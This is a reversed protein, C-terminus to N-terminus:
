DDSEMRARIFEIESDYLEDTQVYLYPDDHMILLSVKAM